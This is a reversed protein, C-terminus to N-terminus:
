LFFVVVNKIINMERIFPLGQWKCSYIMDTTCKYQMAPVWALMKVSEFLM